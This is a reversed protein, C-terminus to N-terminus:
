RRPSLQGSSGSPADKLVGVLRCRIRAAVTSWDEALRRPHTRVNPFLPMEAGLGHTAWSCGALFSWVPLGMGAALYMVATHATVVLDCSALIGTVDELDNKLDIPPNVFTPLERELYAVEEETWAYQVNVITVPLARFIEALVEVTMYHPMNTANMNGGRWSVAIRLRSPRAALTPAWRAVKAPDPALYRVLPWARRARTDEIARRLESIFPVPLSSIPIQLDVDRGGLTEEVSPRAAVVSLRPFSRRYLSVLRPDTEVVVDGDYPPIMPLFRAYYLHDGIGQEMWVFLSRGHRPEGEWRPRVIRYAWYPPPGPQLLRNEALRYGTEIKGQTLQAYALNLALHPKSADVALARRIWREAEEARTDLLIIHSLNVL